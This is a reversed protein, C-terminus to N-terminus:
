ESCKGANEFIWKRREVRSLGSPIRISGGSVAMRMRELDFNFNSESGAKPSTHGHNRGILFQM